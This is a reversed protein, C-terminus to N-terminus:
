GDSIERALYRFFRITDRFPNIKSEENSYITRIPASLIRYGKKSAKILVESEIEFDRCVPKINRLIDCSIYRYGCQSDPIKQRCIMSILLSMFRNILLRILPMGKTDAMRNGAVIVQPSEKVVSVFTEIDDPEHQGDGDMTIVGTYNHKLAYQFGKQLSLAKGEKSDNRFVVAGKEEAITSSKDSSGDDIVVIDYGKKRLNEVLYGITKAENHVPIIICIKM